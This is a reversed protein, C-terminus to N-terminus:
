AQVVRVDAHTLPVTTDEWGLGLYVDQMEERIAGAVHESVDRGTGWQEAYAETDVDVTYMVRFRM